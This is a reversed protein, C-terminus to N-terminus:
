GSLKGEGSSRHRASLQCRSPTKQGRLVNPDLSSAITGARLWCPQQASHQLSPAPSPPPEITHKYQISKEFQVMHVGHRKTVGGFMCKILCNPTLVNWHLGKHLCADPNTKSRYAGAFSQKRLTFQAWLEIGQCKPQAGMEAPGGNLDKYVFIRIIKNWMYRKSRRHYNATNTGRM